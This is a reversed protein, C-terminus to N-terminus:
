KYQERAVRAIPFCREEFVHTLMQLLRIGLKGELIGVSPLSACISSHERGVVIGALRMATLTRVRYEVPHKLRQRAGRWRRAVQLEGAQKRDVVAPQAIVKQVVVAVPPQAAYDPLLQEAQLCIILWPHRKHVELAAAKCAATIFARGQKLPNQTCNHVM